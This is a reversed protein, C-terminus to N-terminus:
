LNESEQRSVVDLSLSCDRHCLSRGVGRSSYVAVDAQEVDRIDGSMGVEDYLVQAIWVQIEGM